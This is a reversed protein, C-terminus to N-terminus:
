FSCNVGFVITKFLPFDSSTNEPDLGKLMGDKVFIFPNNITAYVRLKSMNLKKLVNKPLNYGLTINKIKVRREKM